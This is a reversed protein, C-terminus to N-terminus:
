LLVCERQHYGGDDDGEGSEEDVIGDSSSCAIKESGLM